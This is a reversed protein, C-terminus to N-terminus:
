YYYLVGDEVWKRKWDVWSRMVREKPSGSERVLIELIEEISKGEKLLGLLRFQWYNLGQFAIRYNIRYIACWSYQEFPLEPNEGKQLSQYYYFIPFRFEFLHFVPTLKLGDSSKSVVEEEKNKKDFIVQIHYEFTALEILFDPWDEKEKADKDPRTEALFQPFKKGLEILNYNESPYTKLYEDVFGQFLQDGLAYQLAPFQKSMCERLRAVYSRQYIALHQHAAMRQSPRIVSEIEEKSTGTPHLLTGQMWQQIKDLTMKEQEKM